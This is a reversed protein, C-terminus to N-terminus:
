ISEFKASELGIVLLRAFCSEAVLLSPSLEIAMILAVFVDDQVGIRDVPSVM